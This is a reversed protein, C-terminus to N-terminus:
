KRAARLPTDLKEEELRFHLRNVTRTMIQWLREKDDIVKRLYEKSLMAPTELMKHRSGEPLYLQMMVDHLINGVTIADIYESKPADTDIGMVRQFYFRVQCERYSNLSSASFFLRDGGEKSAPPNSFAELSALIEPTKEISPRPAGKGFSPVEM